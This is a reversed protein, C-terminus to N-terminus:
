RKRRVVVGLGRFTRTADYGLACGPGRRTFTVSRGLRTACRRRGCPVSRRYFVNSLRLVPPDGAFGRRMFSPVRSRVERGRLVVGVQRERAGTCRGVGRGLRTGVGGQALVHSLLGDDVACLPLSSLVDHHGNTAGASTLLFTGLRGGQRDHCVRVLPCTGGLVRRTEGQCCRIRHGMGALCCGNSSRCKTITRNSLTTVKSIGLFRLFISGPTGGFCCPSVRKAVCVPM